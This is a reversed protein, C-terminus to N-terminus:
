RTSPTRRSTTLPDLADSAVNDVPRPRRRRRLHPASPTWPRRLSPAPGTPSRSASAESGNVVDRGVGRVRGRDRPRRGPGTPSRSASAESGNVVDRGVGRVRQRRRARRGPGTRSRAGSAGSGDVVDRGVSRVRRRDPPWRGPGAPSRADTARSGDYVGVARRPAGKSLTTCARRGDCRARPCAEARRAAGQGLVQAGRQVVHM